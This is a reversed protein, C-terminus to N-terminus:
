NLFPKNDVAPATTNTEYHWEYNCWNEQKTWYLGKATDLDYQPITEKVIAKVKDLNEASIEPTRSTVSFSEYKMKGKMISSCTYSIDFNDYDTKWVTIPSRHTGGGMTAMCTFTDKSGEDCQYLTGNVGMYGLKLWYYGRFFLDMSKEEANFQGFEKTVCDTSITYPNMKDRVVEYWKGSYRDADFNSVNEITPCSGFSIKADASNTFLAVAALAAISKNM